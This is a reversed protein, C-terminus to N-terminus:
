SRVAWVTQNRLNQQYIEYDRKCKESVKSHMDFKSRAEELVKTIWKKKNNTFKVKLEAPSKDATGSSQIVTALLSDEGTFASANDITHNTSIFLNETECALVFNLWLVFLICIIPMTMKVVKMRNRADTYMIHKFSPQSSQCRM